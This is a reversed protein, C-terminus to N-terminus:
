EADHALVLRGVRRADIQLLDNQPPRYISCWGSKEGPGPDPVLCTGMGGRDSHGAVAGAIPRPWLFDCASTAIGRALLQQVTSMEAVVHKPHFRAVFRFCASSFLAM